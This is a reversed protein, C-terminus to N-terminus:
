GGGPPAILQRFKPVSAVPIIQTTALFNSAATPDVANWNQLIRSVHNYVGQDSLGAAYVAAIALDPAASAARQSLSMLALTRTHPDSINGLAALAGTPDSGWIDNGYAFLVSNDSQIAAPLSNYLSLVDSAGAPSGRLEEFVGTIAAARVDDSGLGLAFAVARDVNFGALLVAVAGATDKLSGPNVMAMMSAFDNLAAPPVNRGLGDLMEGPKDVGNAIDLLEAPTAYQGFARAVRPLALDRYGNAALYRLAAARDSHIWEVLVAERAAAPDDPDSQAAALRQEYTQPRPHLPVSATAAGPAGGPPVSARLIDVSRMPAKEPRSHFYVTSAVAGLAFFIVATAVTRIRM